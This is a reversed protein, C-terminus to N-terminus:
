APREATAAARGRYFERVAEGLMVAEGAVVPPRDLHVVMALPQQASMAGGSVPSAAM